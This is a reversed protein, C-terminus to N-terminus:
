TSADYKRRATAEHAQMMADRFLVGSHSLHAAGSTTTKRPLRLALPLAASALAGRRRAAHPPPPPRGPHTTCGAM